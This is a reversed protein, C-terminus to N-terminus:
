PNHKRPWRGQHETNLPEHAGYMGLSAGSREDGTVSGSRGGRSTITETGIRSGDINLAGTGHTLVNHAVTGILPKRAVIIPEHAPKLATGLRGM